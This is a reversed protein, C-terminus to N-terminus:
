ENAVFSLMAIFVNHDMGAHKPSSVSNFDLWRRLTLGRNRRKDHRTKSPLHHTGTPLQGFIISNLGRKEGGENLPCASGDCPRRDWGGIRGSPSSRSDLLQALVEHMNM